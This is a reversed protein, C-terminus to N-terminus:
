IAEGRAACVRFDAAVGIAYSATHIVLPLGSLHSSLTAPNAYCRSRRSPGPEILLWAACASVVAWPRVSISRPHPKRVTPGLSGIALRGPGPRRTKSIAAAAARSPRHYPYENWGGGGARM